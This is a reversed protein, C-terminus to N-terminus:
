YGVIHSMLISELIQCSYPTRSNKGGGNKRHELISLFFLTRFQGGESIDSDLFKWRWFHCLGFSQHCATSESLKQFHCTRSETMESPPWKLVRNKEGNKCILPHCSNRSVRYNFRILMKGISYDYNLTVATSYWFSNRSWIASYM